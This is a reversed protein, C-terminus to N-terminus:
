QITVDLWSLAGINWQSAGELVPQFYERHTGYNINWPATLNFEFRAIQGPEVVHQNPALTAGDSLYVKSFISGTRGRSPWDYSFVSGRNIPNTAALHVPQLGQPVSTDDYWRATGTNKYQLYSAISQGRSLTPYSSQADFQAKKSTASVTVDLWSIVGLSPHHQDVLIPQFYERTQGVQTGENAVMNFSFEGIQGPMVIHQNPALTTGNAEYVKSFVNSAVSKSPWGSAFKSQRNEGGATSLQISKYGSPVSTTDYWAASGTNKFRFYNTAIDSNQAISPYSSQGLFSASYRSQVNFSFWALGGMNWSEAGEVVPQFYETHQGLGVSWPATLNFEFRAIEGPEVAHQNSTLTVGDSKYVKSFTLNPRGASPWGYSFASNRNIPTTAALHIPRVGNPANTDDYWRASGFNVYDIYMQRPEGLFFPESPLPSQRYFRAQYADAYPVGFWDNYYLWFNRNGYAGCPEASGYGANLAAQTPQYPTYVYLATTAKNEMYVPSSGCNVDVDYQIQNNQYPRKNTWWSEQMNDLYSRYLKASERIQMSFGSYNVDCNASGGPGSDPCRAGMAYVLQNWFPWDDTILGSEKQLTVLLVKPSINFDQAAQWIIEAASKSGEPVVWDTRGYNNAPIYNGPTTKPVEYYDKLCRFPAPNGRSEGYQARTTSGYMKEGLTDCEPVQTGLFWQIDQIGMSAKDTFIQDDIIRGAQWYRTDAASVPQILLAALALALVSLKLSSHLRTKLRMTSVM